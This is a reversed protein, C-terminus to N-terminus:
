LTFYQFSYFELTLTSFDPLLAKVLLHLNIDGTILLTSLMHDKIDHLSFYTFHSFM